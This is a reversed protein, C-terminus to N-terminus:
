ATQDSQTVLRLGVAIDGVAKAVQGILGYIERTFDDIAVAERGDQIVGAVRETVEDVTELAMAIRMAVDAQEPRSMAVEMATQRRTYNPRIPRWDEVLLMVAANSRAGM